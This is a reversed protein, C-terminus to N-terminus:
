SGTCVAAPILSLAHSTHTFFRMLYVQPRSPPAITTQIWEILYYLLPRQLFLPCFDTSWQPCKGPQLHLRNGVESIWCKFLNETPPQLVCDADGGFMLQRTPWCTTRQYPPTKQPRIFVSLSAGGSPLSMLLGRKIQKRRGLENIKEKEGVAEGNM